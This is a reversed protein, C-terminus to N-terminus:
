KNKILLQRLALAEKRKVVLCLAIAFDITFYYRLRFRVTRGAVNEKAPVYDEGPVGIEFVTRNLWRTYNCRKLGVARYFAFSHVMKKDGIQYTELAKIIKSQRLVYTLIIRKPFL